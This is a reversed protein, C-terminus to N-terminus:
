TRVPSDYHPHKQLALMVDGYVDNRSAIESYTGSVPMIGEQSENLRASLLPNLCGVIARTTEGMRRHLTSILDNKRAVSIAKLLVCDNAARIIRQEVTSPTYVRQFFYRKDDGTKRAAGEFGICDQEIYTPGFPVSVLLLGGPKLVRVMEQISRSDGSAGQVHEVVSMSYVVDFEEDAYNLSRADQTSFIANGMAHHRISTWLVESEAASPEDIDTLHLTVDLHRALYLGFCKPSAVDLIRIPASRDHSSVHNSIQGAMFDYEPFRTYSNIPQLIKGLTKKFGLRFGNRLLNAAGLTLGFRYFTAERYPFFPRGVVPDTAFRREELRPRLETLM